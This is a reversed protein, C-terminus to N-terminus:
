RLPSDSNNTPTGRRSPSRARRACPRRRGTGARQRSRGPRVRSGGRHALADAPLGARVAPAPDGDAPLRPGLLVRYPQPLLRDLGVAEVAACESRPLQLPEVDGETRTWQRLPDAGLAQVATRPRAVIGDHIRPM